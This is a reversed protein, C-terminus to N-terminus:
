APFDGVGTDALPDWQAREDLIRYVRVANERGKVRVDGLPESRVEGRVREHVAESVYIAGGPAIAELRFAVNVDDGIATYNMKLDSGINGVVADGANVGIGAEFGAAAPIRAKWRERLAFTEAQMAVAARVAQLEDHGGREPVGFLVMMADGIFKDVYGGHEEVIRGLAGFYDNLIEVTLEPSEGEALRTFGRIDCVLIVIRERRGGLEYSKKKLIDDVVRTSVYRSAITRIEERERAIERGERRSRDLAKANVLASEAVSAILAFLQRDDATYDRPMEEISLLGLLEDTRRTVLPACLTMGYRGKGILGKLSGETRVEQVFLATRREASYGLLTSASVSVDGRDVLDDGVEKFITLLPEGERKLFFQARKVDMYKQLFELTGRGIADPDHTTLLERIRSFIVSYRQGVYATGSKLEAEKEQASQRFRNVQATLEYVKRALSGNERFVLTMKRYLYLLAGFFLTFFAVVLWPTEPM